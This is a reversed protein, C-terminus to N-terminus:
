HQSAKLRCLGRGPGPDARRDVETFLAARLRGEVGCLSVSPSEHPSLFPVYSAFHSGPM